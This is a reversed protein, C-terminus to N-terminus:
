QCHHCGGSLQFIARTAIFLCVYLCEIFPMQNKSQGWIVVTVAVWSSKKKLM